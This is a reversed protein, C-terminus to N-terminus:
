LGSITLIMLRARRMGETNSSDSYHRYILDLDARIQEKLTEQTFRHGTQTQTKLLAKVDLSEYSQLSKEWDKDVHLAIFASATTKGLLRFDIAYPKDDYAKSAAVLEQEENTLPAYRALLEDAIARNRASAPSSLSTLLKLATRADGNSDLYTTVLDDGKSTYGSERAWIVMDIMYQHDQMGSYNGTCVTCAASILKPNNNEPLCCDACTNSYEIDRGHPHGLTHIFEHFLLNKYSELSYSEQPTQVHKKLTINPNISVFPHQLSGDNSKQGPALSAHANADSWNYVGENCAITLPGTSSLNARAKALNQAAGSNATGAALALRQLCQMGATFTQNVASIFDRGNQATCSKQIKIGSPLVIFGQDLSALTRTIAPESQGIDVSGLNNCAQTPDSASALKLSIAILTTLLM